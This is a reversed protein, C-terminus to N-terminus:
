WVEQGSTIGFAWGQVLLRLGQQFQRSKRPNTNTGNHYRYKAAKSAEFTTKLYARAAPQPTLFNLLTLLPSSKSLL